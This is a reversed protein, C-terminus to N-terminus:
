PSLSWTLVPLPVLPREANAYLNRERAAIAEKGSDANAQCQSWAEDRQLYVARMQLQTLAGLTPVVNSMQDDSKMEAQEICNDETQDVRTEAQEVGLKNAAGPPAQTGSACGVLLIATIALLKLEIHKVPTM